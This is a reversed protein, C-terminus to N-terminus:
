SAALLTSVPGDLGLDWRGLGGTVVGESGLRRHQGELRPSGAARKEVLDGRGWSRATRIQM